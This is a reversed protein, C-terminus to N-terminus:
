LYLNCPCLKGLVGPLQKVQSGLSNNSSSCRILSSSITSTKTCYLADVKAIAVHFLSLLYDKTSILWFTEFYLRGCFLKVHTSTFVVDFLAATVTLREWILINAVIGSHMLVIMYWLWIEMRAISNLNYFVNHITFRNTRNM